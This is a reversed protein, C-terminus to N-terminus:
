GSAARKGACWSRPRRCTPSGRQCAHGRGSTCPVAYTKRKNPKVPHKITKQKPPPRGPAWEPHNNPAAPRPTPLAANTQCPSSRTVSSPTPHNHPTNWPHPTTALRPCPDSSLISPVLTLPNPPQGNASATPCLPGAYPPHRWYHQPKPRPPVPLPTTLLAQPRHRTSREQPHPSTPDPFSPSELTHNPHPRTPQRAHTSASINHTPPRDTPTHKPKKQTSKSLDCIQPNPSNPIRAAWRIPRHTSSGVLTGWETQGIRACRTRTAM